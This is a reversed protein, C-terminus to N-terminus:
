KRILNNFDLIFNYSIKGFQNTIEDRYYMMIDNGNKCRRDKEMIQKFYHIRGSNRLHIYSYGLKGLVDGVRDLARNTRTVYTSKAVREGANKRRKIVGPDNKDFGIQTFTTDDFYPFEGDTKYPYIDYMEASEEAYKYLEHSIKIKRTPLTLTGDDKFKDLTLNNFEFRDEAGIGEFMGLALFKDSPNPILGSEMDDLIEQRTLLRGEQRIKNLCSLLIERDAIERYHNTYDPVYGNVICYDTYRIYIRNVIYLTDYSAYSRSKYYNIIDEVSFLSLDKGLEKEYSESINLTRRYGRISTEKTTGQIEKLFDEKIEKNYM